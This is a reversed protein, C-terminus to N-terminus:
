LLIIATKILTIFAEGTNTNKDLIIGKVNIGLDGLKENLMFGYSDNGVKGIIKVQLGFKKLAVAQNAGKGGPGMKFTSAKLTEGKVPLRPVRFMLDTVFSGFVTIKGMNM